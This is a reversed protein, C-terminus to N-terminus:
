DGDIFEDIHKKTAKKTKADVYVKQVQFGGQLKVTKDEPEKILGVLKLANDIKGTKTEKAITDVMDQLIDTESTKTRLSELINRCAFHDIRGQSKKDDLGQPSKKFKM